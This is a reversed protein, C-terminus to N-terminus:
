CSRNITDEVYKFTYGNYSTIPRTSHINCARSISGHNLKVGFLEKSQRELDAMSEFIGLSIGDKFIEVQRKSKEASKSAGKAGGVKMAQKSDYTCLNLKNGKNLYRTVTASNIEFYKSIEKPTMESNKNKFDCIEKLLSSESDKRCKEWNINSLDLLHKLQENQIINNKIYDFNSEKCEIVIYNNIYPKSLEEKQIDKRQQEIATKGFGDEYHQRGNMEIITSKNLIAFDYRINSTIWNVNFKTLQYIYDEDLQNLIAIMMRECYSIGNGCPCGVSHSRTFNSLLIYKERGCIPCKIKVKNSSNGHSYKYGDEKNVLYDMVWPHTTAVCNTHNIKQNSCYACGIYEKDLTGEVVENDSNCKNCHYTYYKRNYKKNNKDMVQQEIRMNTITIDRISNKLNQGKKYKFDNTYQGILKGIKGEKLHDPTIKFPENNLYKVYLYGDKYDIITFNGKVEGYEFDINCNISNTWIYRHENNIPINTLNVYKKKEM